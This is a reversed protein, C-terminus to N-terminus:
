PSAIELGFNGTAEGRTNKELNPHSWIKSGVVTPECTAGLAVGAAGDCSIEIPCRCLLCTLRKAIKRRPGSTYCCSIIPEAGPVGFPKELVEMSSMPSTLGHM